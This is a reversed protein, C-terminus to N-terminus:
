NKKQVRLQLAIFLKVTHKKFYISKFPFIFWQNEVCIM